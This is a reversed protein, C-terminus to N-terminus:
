YVNHNNYMKDPYVFGSKGDSIRKIKWCPKGSKCIKKKVIDLIDGTQVEFAVKGKRYVNDNSLIKIKTEKTILYKNFWNFMFKNRKGKKNTLGHNGGDIIKLKYDKNLENLKNSLHKAHKTSVRLDDSGQLILLPVNIKDAWYIASRKKWEEKNKGVLDIIVKKMKEDRNATLQIDTVGGIVVAAKIKVQNKLALYTMMGGRSYGLMVINSEDAFPLSKAMPILNLVDNIDKGGFEEKGEGGDNGRYQSALVVYGQSALFSLYKLSKNTIKFFERNGGRNYIMVPLKKLDKDKLIFGVVKLGDSLYKIKYIDINDFKTENNLKQMAVIKGNTSELMSLDQFNSDIDSNYNAQASLALIFVISMLRILKHFYKKM